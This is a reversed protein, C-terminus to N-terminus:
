RGRNEPASSITFAHYENMSIVPIKIKIYDGAKFLFKKPRKIILHIVGSPLIDIEKIYTSGLNESKTQVCSIFLEFLFFVSPVLFWKWFNKAHLILLIYVVM